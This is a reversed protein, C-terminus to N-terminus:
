PRATCRTASAVVVRPRYGYGSPRDPEVVRDAAMEALACPRRERVNAAVDREVELLDVDGAPGLELLAVSLPQGDDLDVALSREDVV